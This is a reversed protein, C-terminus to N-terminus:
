HGHSHGHPLSGAPVRSILLASLGTTLPVAAILGACGIVTAVIPEATDQYNLSDTVKTQTANLLLLLPLSAGAYALVLTHITASLHDRGVTLASRYLARAHLRPNARRLAMVASAQTVATDALVGLAGIVMGAIVIGQLSLDPNDVTLAGSVESVKGDLTAFNSALMALVSTLLLTASIGLAAALTQAGVGNTLVLTVFMVALSGILAVLIAPRGALLAPVVFTTLLLVSLGVGIVALLGRWRLAVLALAALALALLVVSRHRDIGAFTYPEVRELGPTGSPLDIKSVRIQEGPRVGSATAVPGLSLTESRGDVDVILQRCTQKAPGPCRSDVVRQVEAAITPASTSSSQPADRDHPWLAILGILTGLAIAIVSGILVKGAGSAALHRAEGVATRRAARSSTPAGPGVPARRGDGDRNSPEDAM